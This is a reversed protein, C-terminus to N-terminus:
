RDNNIFESASASKAAFYIIISSQTRTFDVRNKIGHTTHDVRPDGLDVQGWALPQHVVKDDVQEM